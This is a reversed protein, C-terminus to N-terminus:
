LWVQWSGDTSESEVAPKLVIIRLGCPAPILAASHRRQIAKRGCPTGAKPAGELDESPSREAHGHSTARHGAKLRNLAYSIEDPPGRGCLLWPLDSNSKSLDEPLCTEHTCILNTSGVMQTEETGQAFCNLPRLGESAVEACIKCFSSRLLETQWTPRQQM